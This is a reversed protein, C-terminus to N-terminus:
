AQIVFGAGCFGFGAGVAAFLEDGECFLVADRVFDAAFDDDCGV